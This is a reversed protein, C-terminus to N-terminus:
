EGGYKAVMRRLWESDPAILMASERPNRDATDDAFAAKVALEAQVIREYAANFERTGTSELLLARLRDYNALAEKTRALSLSEDRDNV